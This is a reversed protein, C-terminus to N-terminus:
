NRKAEEFVDKKELDTNAPGQLVRGDPDFRSGHCPCDWSREALNWSLRCGMHTCDPAVAHADGRDDVFVAVTEGDVDVFAAEGPQLQDLSRESALLKDGFLHRAVNLNEKVFNVAAQRPRKRTADFAEAWPNERGAIADTVMTAAATGNTMGWKRFGTAVFVHEHDDSLRGVFPMGDVSVYDQASWRYEVEQFGSLRERAWGELAQYHEEPDPDQGVKHSEGGVIVGPKSGSGYPRLSRTPSDASIYMGEPAKESLRVAIAYARMPYTRAYFRGDGMFPIQTAVVVHKTSFQTGDETTVHVVRKLEEVEKVRTHEYVHSGGGDVAAALGLCYKRPHFAAQDRLQVAKTVSFPLSTDEVLDAALGVDRCAQAEREVADAGDMTEAYTLADQTVLDCEIGEGEAIERIRRIASSQADAYASARERGHRSVLDQYILGHLATIKATTYGTVGSAVRGAELVAVKLGERKLSLATTLGTIGGGIVVADVTPAEKMPEYDSAESTGIWLSPNREDLIGV